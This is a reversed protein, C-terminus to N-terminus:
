ILGPYPIASPKPNSASSVRPATPLQLHADQTRAESRPAPERTGFCQAKRRALGGARQRPEWMWAAPNAPSLRPRAPCSCGWLALM